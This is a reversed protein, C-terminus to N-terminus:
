AHGYAGRRPTTRGGPVDLREELQTLRQELVEEVLARRIMDLVSALRTAQETALEGRRAERYVRGLEARVGRLTDLRGIRISSVPPAPLNQDSLHNEERSRSPPHKHRLRAVARSTSACKPRWV